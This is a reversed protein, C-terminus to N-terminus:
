PTACVAPAGSGLCPRDSGTPDGTFGPGVRLPGGYYRAEPPHAGLAIVAVALFLAVGVVVIALRFWATRIETRM